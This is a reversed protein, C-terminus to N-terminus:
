NEGKSILKTHEIQSLIRISDHNEVVETVEFSLDHEIYYVTDGKQIDRFEDLKKVEVSFIALGNIMDDFTSVTLTESDNIALLDQGDRRVKIKSM